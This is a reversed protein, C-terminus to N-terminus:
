SNNISQNGKSTTETHVMLHVTVVAEVPTLQNIEKSTTETHAM